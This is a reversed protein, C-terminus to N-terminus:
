KVFESTVFTTTSTKCRSDTNQPYQNIFDAFAEIQAVFLM